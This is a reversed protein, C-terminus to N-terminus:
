AAWKKKENKYLVLNFSRKRPVWYFLNVWGCLNRVTPSFLRTKSDLPELNGVQWLWKGATHGWVLCEAEQFKPKNVYPLCITFLRTETGTNFRLKICPRWRVPLQADLLIALSALTVHTTRNDQHSRDTTLRHRSRLAALAMLRGSGSQSSGM